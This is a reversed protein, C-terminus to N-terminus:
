QGGVLPEVHTEITMGEYLGGMVTIEGVKCFSQMLNFIANNLEVEDIPYQYKGVFRVTISVKSETFTPATVVKPNESPKLSQLIKDTEASKKKLNALYEEKNVRKFGLSVMVADEIKPDTVREGTEVDLLVTGGLGVM